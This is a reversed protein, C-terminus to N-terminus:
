NLWLAISANNDCCLTFISLAYLPWYATYIILSLNFYGHQLVYLNINISISIGM